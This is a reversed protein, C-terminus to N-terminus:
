GAGPLWLQKHLGVEKLDVAYAYRYTLQRIQEYDNMQGGGNVSGRLAPRLRTGGLPWGRRRRTPRTTAAETARRELRHGRTAVACTAAGCIERSRCQRPGTSFWM